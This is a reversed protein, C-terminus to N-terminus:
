TGAKSGLVGRIMPIVLLLILVGFLVFLLAGNNGFSNCANVLTTSTINTCPASTQVSDLLIIAIYGILIIIAINILQYPDVMGRHTKGVYHWVNHQNLNQMQKQLNAAAICVFQVLALQRLTHM